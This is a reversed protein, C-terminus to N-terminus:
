HADPPSSRGRARIRSSALRTANAQACSRSTPRPQSRARGSSCAPGMLTTPPLPTFLVIDRTNVRRRKTKAPSVAAAIGRNAAQVAGAGDDGVAAGLGVSAGGLGVSAGLGAAAAVAGAAAAGVGVVAGATTAAGWTPVRMM